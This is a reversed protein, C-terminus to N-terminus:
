HTAGRIPSQFEEGCAEAAEELGNSEIRQGASLPSFGDDWEVVMACIVCLNLANGRPYPVSVHADYYIDATSRCKPNLANGRPYPVSVKVDGLLLSVYIQTPNM